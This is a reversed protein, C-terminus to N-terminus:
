QFYICSNTYHLAMGDENLFVLFLFFDPLYCMYMFYAFLGILFSLSVVVYLFLILFYYSFLSIFEM